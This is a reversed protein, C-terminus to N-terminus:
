LAKVITLLNDPNNKKADILEYKFSEMANSKKEHSRRIRDEIGSDSWIDTYLVNRYQGIRHLRDECQIREGYKFGNSFFVCDNSKTLDLGFGGCSATALFYGGNDRWRTLNKYRNRKETLKGYYTSINKNFMSGLTEEILEISKRHQTFIVVPRDPHISNLTNKLEEIKNNGIDDYECKFDPPVIGNVVSKLSTFLKYIAIGMEHKEMDLVDEYFKDKIKEYLEKQKLTLKVMRSSYTKEPLDLCEDKTIQYIYPEIKKAILDINKRNTILGKYEESYELHKRVFSYWSRYGLIKDSLFSIQSYLDEIGQSIPTGTLILRYKAREGILKLRKTRKATHGKIYSSEDVILMTNEDILNNFAMTVRDSGGISELGVIYWFANKINDDTTNDDFIYISSNKTHKTIQEVANMKLSVPCCWVFKNIKHKRNYGIQIATLSKGTGMEMFLGGVRLNDLKKVAKTQHTMLPTIIEWQPRNM